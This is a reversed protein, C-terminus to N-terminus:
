RVIYGRKQLISEVREIVVAAPVDFLTLGINKMGPRGRGPKPTVQGIIGLDILTRVYNRFSIEKRPTVNIDECIREYTEYAMRINVSSTNKQLLKRAIALAAILEQDNLQELMEARLEPYVNRKAARIHEATVREQQNVDALTGAADMIEIAHRINQTEYSINAILEIEEGTIADDRFALRARYDIIEYTEDFNYPHFEIVETIRQSVASSLKIKWESPRSILIISIRSQLGLEEHINLFTQIDDSPLATAEDLIFVMYANDTYLRQVLINLLEDFTLGKTRVKFQHSIAKSVVASVTRATWCNRYAVYFNIGKNNAEQQIADLTYRTTATKGIGAPGVIAININYGLNTSPHKEQFIPRFYHALTRIQHERHPLKNPIYNLQLTRKDKFVSTSYIASRVIDDSLFKDSEM